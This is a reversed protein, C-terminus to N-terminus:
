KCCLLTGGHWIEPEFSLWVLITGGEGGGPPLVLGFFGPAALTLIVYFGNKM